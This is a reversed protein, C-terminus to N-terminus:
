RERLLDALATLVGESFLVEEARDQPLMMLGPVLWFCLHECQLGQTEPCTAGKLKIGKIGGGVQLHPLEMGGQALM